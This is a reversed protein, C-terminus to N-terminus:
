KRTWKTKNFNGHGLLWVLSIEAKTPGIQHRRKTAEWSYSNGSPTYEIYVGGLYGIGLTFDLNLRRGIAVSYGYEIGAGYNCRDFITGHPKGGMYGKGGWEFDYTLAQIYIGAHHGSLPKAAAKHGFWKRVAIDGGYIRWYRHRRDSKWWAYMWDGTVSWNKGIYFEIGLNPITVADYLLNTKIGMYFPQRHPTHPTNGAAVHLYITEPPAAATEFLAPTVMVPVTLFERYYDIILTSKRLRPFYKRYMYCYPKGKHLHKLQELNHSSEKEGNRVNEIISELLTMTEDRYPIEMDTKVMDYLGTWDRGSFTFRTLSDPLDTIMRVYDFIKDARQKSLRNNYKVSGEPSAGGTISVSKIKGKFGVEKTHFVKDSFLKLTAGNEMYTTDLNIKSQRFHISVSDHAEEARANLGLSIYAAILCLISQKIRFSAM